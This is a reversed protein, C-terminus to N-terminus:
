IIIHQSEKLVKLLKNNIITSSKHRVHEDKVGRPYACQNILENIDKILHGPPNHLLGNYLNTFRDIFINECLVQQNNNSRVPECINRAFNCLGHCNVRDCHTHKSCSTMNMSTHLVSESIIMDSDVIKVVPRYGSSIGFNNEKIDCFHVPEKYDEDLSKIIGLLDIAIQVRQSWPKNQKFLQPDLVHESPSYEVAYFHGCAGYLQPVYPMGHFLKTFTYEDQIILSLADRNYKIKDIYNTNKDITPLLTILDEELIVINSEENIKKLVQKWGQETWDGDESFWIAPLETNIYYSLQLDGNSPEIVDLQDHEISSYKIVITVTKSKDGIKYYTAGFVIKGRDINLCKNYTIVNNVCLDQCLDGSVLNNRYNDCVNHYAQLAKEESCPGHRQSNLISTCVILIISISVTALLNRRKRWRCM